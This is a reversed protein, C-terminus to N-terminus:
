NINFGDAGVESELRAMAANDPILIGWAFLLGMFESCFDESELALKMALPNVAVPEREGTVKEVGAINFAIGIAAGRADEHTSATASLGPRGRFIQKWPDNAV